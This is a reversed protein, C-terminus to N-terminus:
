MREKVKKLVVATLGSITNSELLDSIGIRIGFEDQIAVVIEATKISDIGLDAELNADALLMEVPYGTKTAILSSLQEQTSEPSM